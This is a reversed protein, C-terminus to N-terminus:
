GQAETPVEEQDAQRHCGQLFCKYYFILFTINFM